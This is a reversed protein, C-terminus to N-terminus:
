VLDSTPLTLHTYSVAGGKIVEIHDIREIPVMYYTSADGFLAPQIPIDDLMLLINKSRRPDMGRIGINPRLGQGYEDLVNVGPVRRLMEDANKPRARQIEERTVVNVTGAIDKVLEQDPENREHVDKVVIEPVVVPKVGSSSTASWSSGAAPASHRDEGAPAQSMGSPQARELTVTDVSTFRFSLGSGALLESLAEEPTYAGAVERSTRGVAVDDPFSVQLGSTLAFDRLATNLSQPAIQYQITPRPEAGASTGDGQASAHDVGASTFVLMVLLLLIRLNMTFFVDRWRNWSLMSARRCCASNRM